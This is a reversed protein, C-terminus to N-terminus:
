SLNFRFAEHSVKFGLRRYFRHADAREKNSTLVLKYCGADRAADIAYRMVQEGYGRSRMSEDVVVNEVQAWPRARNSLNPMIILVASGIIRGDLELVLLRQNTDASIAHFADRYSDFLSPDERQEHMSLYGLLEILRPLDSESADRIFAPQADAM